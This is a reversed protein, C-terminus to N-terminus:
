IRISGIHRHGTYWQPLILDAENEGKRFNSSRTFGVSTALTISTQLKKKRNFKLFEYSITSFGLYISIQTLETYKKISLM